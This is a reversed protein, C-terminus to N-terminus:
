ATLGKLMLGTLLRADAAATRFDPLGPAAAAAHQRLAAHKFGDAMNLLLRALYVPAPPPPGPLLPALLEALFVVERELVAAYLEDFRPELVQLAALSVQHQDLVHRYYRLREALYHHVQETPTPLHRVQEALAQMFAASEQLVVAIFLEDKSPFYYYLSAKNLQVSRGIDDLTTKAYGFRAFCATAATLITTRRDIRKAM